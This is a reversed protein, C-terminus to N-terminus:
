ARAPWACRACRPTTVCRTRWRWVARRAWAATGSTWSGCAPTRRAVHAKEAQRASVQATCRQILAADHRSSARRLQKGSTWSRCALTKCPPLSTMKARACLVHAVSFGRWACVALACRSAGEASASSLLRTAGAAAHRCTCGRGRRWAREMGPEPGGPDCQGGPWGCTCARWHEVPVSCFSPRCTCIIYLAGVKPRLWVCLLHAYGDLTLFSFQDDTM